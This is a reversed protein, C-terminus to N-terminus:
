KSLSVMTSQLPQIPFPEAVLLSTMGGTPLTPLAMKEPGCGM